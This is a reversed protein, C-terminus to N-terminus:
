RNAGPVWTVDDAGNRNLVRALVFLLDSLRNIYILAAPNVATESALATMARESARAGARAVHVRASAESGGPLVFSTLPELGENLADIQAELWEGQGSVVRLVMESPAFDGDPAPTAIDAGLDFLDNQVRTLLDRHATDQLACIAVGIACNTEDVAGVAAIRASHKATRSGDVLGTTGDDGTRTYIKNLKVM